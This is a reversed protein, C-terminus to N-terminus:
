LSLQAIRYTATGLKILRFWALEGDEVTGIGVAGFAGTVGTAGNFTIDETAAGENIVGFDWYGGVPLDPFATDIQAGTATTDTRAAGNPDRRIYGSRLQAASYAVAGATDLLATATVGFTAAGAPSTTTGETSVDGTITPDILRPRIFQGELTEGFRAMKAEAPTTQALTVRHAHFTLPVQAMNARMGALDPCGHGFHPLM